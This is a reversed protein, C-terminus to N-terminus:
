FVIYQKSLRLWYRKNVHVNDYLWKTINWIPKDYEPLGVQDLNKM